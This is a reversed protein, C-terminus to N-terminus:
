VDNTQQNILGLCSLAQFKNKSRKTYNGDFNQIQLKPLNQASLRATRFENDSMVTGNVSSVTQELYLDCARTVESKILRVQELFLDADVIM